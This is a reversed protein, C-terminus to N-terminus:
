TWLTKNRNLSTIYPIM